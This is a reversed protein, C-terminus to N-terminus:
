AAFAGVLRARFRPQSTSQAAVEEMTRVRTLPLDPDVRAVAATMAPLVSLPDVTTRVAVSASLWPNQTIPVYIEIAPQKEGPQETVQRIVGVIDRVIPTPGGRLDMSQVKLRTGLPEEGKLYREVFADNVICVQTSSTTDHETFARGRRVDIGLTR